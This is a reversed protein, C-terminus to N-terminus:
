QLVVQMIADPTTIYYNGNPGVALGQPDSFPAPLPGPAVGRLDPLGVVTIVQGTPSVMRVAENGADAVLINGAADMALQFPQNFRAAPGAGDVFGPTPVAGPLGALTSLTGSALAIKRISHAGSDSVILNGAGDLVLGYPNMLLGTGVPGDATGAVASNGVLVTVNRGPDIKRVCHNASDALYLNGLSDLALGQPRNFQAALGIGPAFGAIGATGAVTTVTTDPAIMRITHNGTDAVYLNGAPDVAIARPGNFRATPGVGDASGAGLATGAFTSVFGTPAIKRISNNGGDAVYLNGTSDFAMGRPSSFRAVSLVGDVAGPQPASGALTSTIGGGAPIKRVNALTLDTVYLNGAGDMAVGVPQNFRATSPAAPSATTGDTNGTVTLSGAYTSIQGTGAAVKRVARNRYDTVYINGAADVALNDPQSFRGPVGPATDVSAATNPVGAVTTVVTTALNVVRVTSGGLDAFYLNGGALALGSPEVLTAVGVAGDAYAATGQIGALVTTQVAPATTPNFLRILNNASDSVYVQTGAPNVAIGLPMDFTAPVGALTSVNGDLDIMRITHNGRDAVYVKGAADVAVATPANFQAESGPGDLTGAVGPTGALTTVTGDPAVKRITQDVADAVYLNGAADVTAGTPAKFRAFAGSGDGNGPGSPVGTLLQLSGVRVAVPQAVADGAPNTVTLTFTTATTLGGTLAPVGTNVLGVHTDVSGTGNSFTALLSTQAGPGIFPNIATFGTIAPMPVATLTCVQPTSVNGAQDTVILTYTGATASIFGPSTVPINGPLILGTGGSFNFHLETATFATVFPTAAAFLNVTPLTSQLMASSTRTSGDPLTATCTVTSAGAPGATFAIANTGAGATITGAPYRWQYSAGPILGAQAQVGTMGAPVSPQLLTVTFGGAVTAQIPLTVTAASTGTGAQNTVTCDLTLNSGAAGATFTITRTGAGATITGQGVQWQYSSAAQEPVSAQYSLGAAVQAPASITSGAVAPLVAVLVQATTVPTTGSLVTLTYTVSGTGAPNVSLPVGSTVPFGGPDVRGTGGTFSCTLSTSGGATIIAPTASFNSIASVQATTSGTGPSSVKGAANTVTCQLQIPGGTGANFTVINSTAGATITGGTITWLYTSGPQEDVMAVVGVQNIAVQAPLQVVPEIPLPAVKVQVAQEQTGGNGQVALIYVTDQAPTVTVTGGSNVPGINQNLSGTGNSFTFSLNASEGASIVTRDASFATITPTQSAGRSPRSSTCALGLVLALMATIAAGLNLLARLRHHAARTSAIALSCTM